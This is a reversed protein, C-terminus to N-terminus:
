NKCWVDISLVYRTRDYVNKAHLPYIKMGGKVPVPINPCYCDDPFDFDGVAVSPILPSSLDDLSLSYNRPFDIVNKSWDIDIINAMATPYANQLDFDTTPHTIWGIYFSANFGGTYAEEFFESILLADPNDRLPVYRTAKLFKMSEDESRIIGEDLLELGRYLRDYDSRKLVGFYDQISQRMSVAAASSLTIPIAHNRLFLEACFLVVIDADNVAYHYFDVPNTVAFEAMHEIVNQPLEIKPHKILQGLSSLSQNEAPTLGLTDRISLDVLWYFNYNRDNEAKFRINQTSMWGGQIESFNRIVDIDYKSRRFVSIDAKGGNCVITIPIVSDAMANFDVAKFSAHDKSPYKRYIIDRKLVLPFDHFHNKKLDDLIDALCFELPIKGGNVSIGQYEPDILFFYRLLYDSIAISMQVSLVKRSVSGCSFTQFETDLGINM